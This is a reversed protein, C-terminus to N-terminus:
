SQRGLQAPVSERDAGALAGAQETELSARGKAM